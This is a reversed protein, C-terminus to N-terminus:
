GRAESEQRRYIKNIEDTYTGDQNFIYLNPLIKLQRNGSKVATLLFMSPMSDTKSFVFRITKPELGFSRCAEFIDVLRHPRHVMSFNGNEKLLGAAAKVIDNLDCMIEHRAIAKSSEPNIEGSGKEIYPPNTVVCDFEAKSFLNEWDKLDGHIISIMDSLDNLKVSRVAMEAMEEQIEVGVVNNSKGRGVLLLPIIGTGTGLDIVKSNPPNSVFDALLVADVGFRFGKEKQLLKLGDTQLDELTEDEQIDINM